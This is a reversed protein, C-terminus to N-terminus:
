ENIFMSDDETNNDKEDENFMGIDDSYIDCVEDYLKDISEDEYQNIKDEDLYPMIKIIKNIKEKRNM